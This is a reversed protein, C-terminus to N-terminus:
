MTLTANTAQPRNLSAARAIADRLVAVTKPSCPHELLGEAADEGKTGPAAIEMIESVSTAITEARLGGFRESILRDIFGSDESVLALFLHGPELRAHRAL